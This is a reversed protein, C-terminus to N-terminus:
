GGKRAREYHVVPLVGCFAMGIGALGDLHATGTVLFDIMIFAVGIAAAIAPWSDKFVRAVVQSRFEPRPEHNM